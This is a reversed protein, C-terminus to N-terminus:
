VKHVQPKLTNGDHHNGAGRQKDAGKQHKHQRRIHSQDLTRRIYAGFLSLGPMLSDPSCCNTYCTSSKISTCDRSDSSLRGPRRAPHTNRPRSWYDWPDHGRNKLINITEQDTEFEVKQLITPDDGPLGDHGLKVHAIEHALIARLWNPQKEVLTKALKANLKIWSTNVNITAITHHDEVIHISYPKETLQKVLAEVRPKYPPSIEGPYTSCSVPLFLLAFYALRYCWQRIM